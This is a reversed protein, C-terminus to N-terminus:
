SIIPISGSLIVTDRTYKTYIHWGGIIIAIAAIMLIVNLSSLSKIKEIFSM